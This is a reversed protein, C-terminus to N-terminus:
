MVKSLTILTKEWFITFFGMLIRWKPAMGSIYTKGFDQRFIGGKKAHKTLNLFYVWESIRENLAKLHHLFWIIKFFNWVQSIERWTSWKSFVFFPNFFKHLSFICIKNVFIIKIFRTKITFGLKHYISLNLLFFEILYLKLLYLMQFQLYDLIHHIDFLILRM